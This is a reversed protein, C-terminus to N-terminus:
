KIMLNFFSVRVDFHKKQITSEATLARKSIISYCVIQNSIRSLTTTSITNKAHFGSLLKAKQTKIIRYHTQL